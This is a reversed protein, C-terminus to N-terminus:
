LVMVPTSPSLGFMALSKRVLLVYEYLSDVAKSFEMPQVPDGIYYYLCQYEMTDGDMMPILMPM